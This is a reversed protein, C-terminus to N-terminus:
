KFFQFNFDHTDIGNEIREDTSNLIAATYLDTYM